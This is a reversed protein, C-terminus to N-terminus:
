LNCQKPNGTHEPLLQQVTECQGYVARTVRGFSITSIYKWNTSENYIMLNFRESEEYSKNTTKEEDLLTVM